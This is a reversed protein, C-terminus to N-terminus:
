LTVHIHAVLPSAMLAVLTGLVGIAAAAVAKIADNRGSQRDQTSKIAALTELIGPLAQVAVEVAVMREPMTPM